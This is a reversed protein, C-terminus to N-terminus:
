KGMQPVAYDTNHVECDYVFTGSPGTQGNPKLHVFKQNIEKCLPCYPGDYVTYYIQKGEMESQQEDFCSSTLWWVGHLFVESEKSNLKARLNKVERLAAEYKDQMELSQQRANFIASQLDGIKGNLESRLQTNSITNAIDAITKLSSLATGLTKITEFDPLIM